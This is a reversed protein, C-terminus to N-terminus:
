VLSLLFLLCLATHYRDVQLLHCRDRSNSDNLTIDCDLLSQLLDKVYELSMFSFKNHAITGRIHGSKMFYILIQLGLQKM